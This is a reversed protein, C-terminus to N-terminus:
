EVYTRTVGDITITSSSNGVAVGNLIEVIRHKVDDLGHRRLINKLYGTKLNLKREWDSLSLEEDNVNVYICHKPRTSKLILIEEENLSMDLHQKIRARVYIEGHKRIAISCWSKNKGMIKSWETLTRVQDSIKLTRISDYPKPEKPSRQLFEKIKEITSEKGHVQYYKSFYRYHVSCYKSWETLNKRMGDVILYIGYVSNVTINIDYYFKRVTNITHKLGYKHYINIFYHYKLGFYHAWGTLHMTIKNVTVWVAKDKNTNEIFPIWQCNEPCYDGNSDIRDISLKNILPTDEPQDYYGSDERAWTIFNNVDNLWEDCIKIGKAGYSKYSKDNPNYCRNRMGRFIRKLREDSLMKEESM